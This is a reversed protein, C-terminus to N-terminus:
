IAADNDTITIFVKRGAVLEAAVKSYLETYAIRSSGITIKGNVESKTKGVLLCGETDKQENGVHILIYEFSPVNQLWLMGKHLHPFNKLYKAHKGGIMRLKIEYRGAPIRTEGKVKITRAEDELTFCQFVGDIFLEGLTENKNSKIRNVLLEM